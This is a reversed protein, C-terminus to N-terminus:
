WEHKKLIQIWWPNLINVINHFIEIEFLDEQVKIWFYQVHIVSDRFINEFDILFWIRM